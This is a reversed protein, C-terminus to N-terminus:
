LPFYLMPNQSHRTTQLLFKLSLAAFLAITPRFGTPSCNSNISLCTPQTNFKDFNRFALVIIRFKSKEKFM